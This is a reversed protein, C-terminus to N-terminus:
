TMMGLQTAWAAVGSEEEQLKEQLSTSLCAARGLRLHITQSVLDEQLCAIRFFYLKLCGGGRGGHLRGQQEPRSLPTPLSHSLTAKNEGNSPYLAPLVYSKLTSQSLWSSSFLALCRQEPVM